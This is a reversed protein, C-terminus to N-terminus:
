VHSTVGHVVRELLLAHYHGTIAAAAALAAVSKSVLLMIMLKMSFNSPPTTQCVEM